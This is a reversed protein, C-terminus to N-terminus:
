PTEYQQLRAKLAAITADRESIATAQKSIAADRESIAAAQKSITADQEALTDKLTQIEYRLDDGPLILADPFLRGMDEGEEVIYDSYLYQSLEGTLSVLERYDDQSINGFKLNAEISGLIDDKILRQLAQVDPKAGKRIATRFADRLKLLYFPLLLVMKKQNLEEVEHNLLVFNKVEYPVPPKSGFHLYLVSTGPIKSSANLYIVMPEAFHLHLSNDTHNQLADLFDYEFVRLVIDEDGQIEAELHYRYREEILVFVDAIRTSLQSTTMENRTLLLSCDTSHNRDFLGNILNIIARNSLGFIRKFTKDFIQQIETQTQTTM